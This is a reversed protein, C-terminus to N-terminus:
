LPLEQWATLNFTQGAKTATASLTTYADAVRATVRISALDPTPREVPAIFCIGSPYTTTAPAAYPQGISLGTIVTDLCGGALAASAAKAEASLVNFRAQWGAFGYESAVTLLILSVIVTTILAIYGRKM